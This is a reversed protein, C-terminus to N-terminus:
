GPGYLLKRSLVNIILFTIYAALLCYLKDWWVHSHMVGIIELLILSCFLLTLPVLYKLWTYKWKIREMILFCYIIILCFLVLFFSTDRSPNEFLGTTYSRWNLFAVPLWQFMGLIPWSILFLIFFHLKGSMPRMLFPFLIKASYFYLPLGLTTFGLNWWHHRYIALEVFLKEIGVFLGTFFVIWTWGLQLVGILTAAMPLVMMNSAVAGLSSDFYKDHLIIKPYYEYSDLLTYIVFEISYAIGIMLLLLLFCRSTRSKFYAVILLIIGVAAVGFYWFANISM